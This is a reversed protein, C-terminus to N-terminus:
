EFRLETPLKHTWLIDTTDFREQENLRYGVLVEATMAQHDFIGWYIPQKQKATM